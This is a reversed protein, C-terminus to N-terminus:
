TSSGVVHMALVLMSLYEACAVLALSSSEHGTAYRVAFCEERVGVIIGVRCLRMDCRLSRYVVYARSPNYLVTLGGACDFGGACDCGM